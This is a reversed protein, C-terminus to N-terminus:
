ANTQKLTGESKQSYLKKIQAAFMKRERLLHDYDRALKDHIRILKQYDKSLKNYDRLLSSEDPSVNGGINNKRQTNRRM